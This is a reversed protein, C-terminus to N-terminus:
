SSCDVSLLTSHVSHVSLVATRSSKLVLPLIRKVMVLHIEFIPIGPICVPHGRVVVDGGVAFGCAWPSKLFVVFFLSSCGSLM